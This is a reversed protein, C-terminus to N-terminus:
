MKGTLKASIMSMGISIIGGSLGGYVASKSEVTRLRGDIADSRAEVKELMKIQYEQGTKLSALSSKIDALDRPTM